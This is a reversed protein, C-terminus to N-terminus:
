LLSALHEEWKRAAERMEPLYAFRNYTASVGSIVGTAHNILREGLWPRWRRATSSTSASAGGSFPEASGTPM